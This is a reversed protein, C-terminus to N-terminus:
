CSELPVQPLSLAPPDSKGQFHIQRSASIRAQPVLGLLQNTELRDDTGASPCGVEVARDKAWICLGESGLSPEFRLFQDTLHVLVVKTYTVAARKRNDIKM